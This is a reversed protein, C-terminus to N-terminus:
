QVHLGAAQAAETFGRDDGAFGIAAVRADDEVGMDLAIALAAVAALEPAREAWEVLVIAKPDDLLGLEDIERADALRYLDAHIIPSKVGDYPQLLAFSPSPVDLAPDACLSRVIARALATKGAGLDGTLTVLDGPQLCQALVAGLRDTAALDPLHVTLASGPM